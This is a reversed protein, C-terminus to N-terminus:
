INLRDEFNYNQEEKAKEIFREIKEIAIDELKADECVLETFNYDVSERTLKRIELTSLKQNTRGVRKYVEGKM